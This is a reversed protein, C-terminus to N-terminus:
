PQQDTSQKALLDLYGFTIEVLSREDYKLSILDFEKSDQIALRPNDFARLVINLAALESMPVTHKDQAIILLGRAIEIERKAQSLEQQVTAVVALGIHALTEHAPLGDM